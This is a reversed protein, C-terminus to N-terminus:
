NCRRNNVAEDLKNWDELTKSLGKYLDRMMVKIPESLKTTKLYTNIPVPRDVEKKPKVEAM